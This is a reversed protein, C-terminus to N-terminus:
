RVSIQQQSRVLLRGRWPHRRPSARRSDKSMTQQVRRNRNLRSVMTSKDWEARWDTRCRGQCKFEESPTGLPGGCRPCILNVICSIDNSSLKSTLATLNQM